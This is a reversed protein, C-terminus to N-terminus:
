YRGSKPNQDTFFTSMSLRMLQPGSALAITTRELSIEVCLLIAHVPFHFDRRCIKGWQGGKHDPHRGPGQGRPDPRPHLAERHGPVRGRPQGARGDARHLQPLWDVAAWVARHERFILCTLLAESLRAPHSSHHTLKTILIPWANTRPLWNNISYCALEELRPFRTDRLGWVCGSKEKSSGTFNLNFFHLLLLLWRKQFSSAGSAGM